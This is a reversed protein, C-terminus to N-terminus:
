YLGTVQGLTIYAMILVIRLVQAVFLFFVLILGKWVAVDKDSTLSLVAPIMYAQVILVNDYLLCVIVSSNANVQLPGINHL